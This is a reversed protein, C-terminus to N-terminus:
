GTNGILIGGELRSMPILDDMIQGTDLILFRADLIM